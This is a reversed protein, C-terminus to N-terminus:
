PLPTFRAFVDFVAASCVRDPCDHATALQFTCAAAKGTCYGSWGAFRWGSAPKAVVRILADRGFLARCTGPCRLGHPVSAVSGHGTIFVQAVRAHPGVAGALSAAALACVALSAVVALRATSTV